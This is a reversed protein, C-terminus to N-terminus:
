LKSLGNVNVSLSGNLSIIVIVAEDTVFIKDIDIYKLEGSITMGRISNNEKLYSQLLTKSQELQPAISYNLYPSIMNVFTGHLLWSATKVLANRTKLDFDLDKIEISKAISNYEPKGRLYVKGKISGDLSLEVIFRDKSGYANISKIIIKRNGQTFEKDILENQAIENIKTFPIEANMNIEFHPDLMSVINLDPLSILATDKPQNGIILENVSNIAASLYLKNNLGYIPMVSVSSPQIKLWINYQDNLKIPKQLMCWAADVYKRMSIGTKITDDIRSSIMNQASKFFLDAIYTIPIKFGAIDLTPSSLWEYGDPTTKTVLTWDKNITFVTNFKLAIDANFERNDSLSIGFKQFKLDANVWLKLPLRYSIRNGNLAISFDEKKWAKVKILQENNTTRQESNSSAKTLNNNEYVLGNFEKNIKAELDKMDIVVPVTISSPKLTFEPIESVHPPAVPRISHCSVIFLSCFIIFLFIIYRFIRTKM